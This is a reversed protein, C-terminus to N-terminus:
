QKTLKKIVRTKDRRTFVVLYNGAPLASINVVRSAPPALVPRGQMDTISIMAGVLNEGPAITFHDTAPVPYILVGGNGPQPQETVPSVAAVKAAPVTIVKLSSAKDNFGANVLCPNFGSVTISTGTFNDHEFLQIAYGPGVRISSVQDNGIGLQQLNALTYNGPGINAVNGGYNCDTYVNGTQTNYVLPFSAAAQVFESEYSSNWGFAATALAKLNYGTAGSWFHVFEGMNMDRAYAAGNRPFKQSLLRFYRNLVQPGGYDNYIRYFWDRFWYTNARPFDNAQNIMLNYWRDKDATRGLSNYVDYIFIEAWKSDKWIPFAPSRQTGYTTSEVIHAVEHTVIDLDNGTGSTWATLSSSGIDIVNRYDHGADYYYAPHGGSYRGAHFIAYLRGESGMPGYLSKTYNWVQEIFTNPWTISSSVNNDYYIAVNANYFKRTVNQNHEFWHEQWSAPPQATAAFLMTAFVVVFLIQKM